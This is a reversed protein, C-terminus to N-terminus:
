HEIAPGLVAQGREAGRVADPKEAVPRERPAEDSLAPEARGLGVRGKGIARQDLIPQDDVVEAAPASELLQQGHEIRDRRAMADADRADRDPVDEVFGADGARDDACAVGRIEVVEHLGHHQVVPVARRDRADDGLRRPWAAVAVLELPDLFTGV